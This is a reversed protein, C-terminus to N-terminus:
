GELAGKPVGLKRWDQEASKQLTPGVIKSHRVPREELDLGFVVLSDMGYAFYNRGMLWYRYVVQDDM